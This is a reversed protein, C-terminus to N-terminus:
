DHRPWGRRTSLVQTREEPLLGADDMQEDLNTPEPDYDDRRNDPTM